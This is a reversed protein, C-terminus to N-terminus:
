VRPMTVPSGCGTGRISGRYPWGFRRTFWGSSGHAIPAFSEGRSGNPGDLDPQLRVGRMRKGRSDFRKRAVASHAARSPHSRCTTPCARRAAVDGALQAWSFVPLAIPGRATRDAVGYLDAYLSDAIERTGGRPDIAEAARYLSPRQERVFHEWAAEHGVSLGLSVGSGRSAAVGSIAQARPRESARGDFARAASAELATTWADLPLAWRDAKAHRVPAEGASTPGSRGFGRM